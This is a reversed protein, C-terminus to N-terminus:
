KSIPPVKTVASKSLIFAPLSLQYKAKLQVLMRTFGNKPNVLNKFNLTSKQPGNAIKLEM